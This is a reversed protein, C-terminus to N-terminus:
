LNSNAESSNAEKRAKVGFNKIVIGSKEPVFPVSDALFDSSQNEEHACTGSMSM